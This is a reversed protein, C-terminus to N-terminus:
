PCETHKRYAHYHTLDYKQVEGNSYVMALFALVILLLALIIGLRQIWCHHHVIKLFHDIFMRM